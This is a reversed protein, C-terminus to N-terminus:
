FNLLNTFSMMGKRNGYPGQFQTEKGIIGNRILKFMFRPDKNTVKDIKEEADDDDNKTSYEFNQYFKRGGSNKLM